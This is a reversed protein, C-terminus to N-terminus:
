SRGSCIWQGTQTYVLWTTPTCQVYSNALRIPVVNGLQVGGPIRGTLRFQSGHASAFIPEYFIMGSLSLKTNKCTAVTYDPESLKNAAACVNPTGYYDTALAEFNWLIRGNATLGAPPGATAASTAILSAVVLVAAAAGHRIAQRASGSRM